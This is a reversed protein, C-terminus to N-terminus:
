GGSSGVLVSPVGSGSVLTADRLSRRKEVVPRRYPKRGSATANQQAAPEDHESAERAAADDHSISVGKTGSM